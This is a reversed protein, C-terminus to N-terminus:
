NAPKLFDKITPHQFQFSSELLKNCNVDAGTLLLEDAMEGLGLRLLSGPIRMFHPRHLSQALAHSFTKQNIREPSVCTVAGSIEPHNILWDIVQCIDTLSIWPFPQLGNGSTAGLGLRYPLLMKALLGGTKSLVPAFRMKVVRCNAAVAPECASEWGVAVRQLFSKPERIAQEENDSQDQLQNYAPYVGVASANLLAPSQSTTQLEACLSALLQTATIRSSFITEKYSASWRKDAISAGSLNVIVDTDMLAQKGQSELEQWSLAQISPDFIKQIRQKDRGIITIKHGTQLLHRTLAQGIFGTGGAICIKM